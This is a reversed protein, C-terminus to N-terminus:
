IPVFLLLLAGFPVGKQYADAKSALNIRPKLRLCQLTKNALTRKVNGVNFM